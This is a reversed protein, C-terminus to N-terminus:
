RIDLTKTCYLSTGNSMCTFLTRGTNATGTITLDAGSVLINTSALTRSGTADQKFIIWYVGGDKLNSLTTSTVNGTLTFEASNGDKFDLTAGGTINATQRVGYFQDGEVVFSDGIGGGANNNAVTFRGTESGGTATAWSVTLRTANALSSSANEIRYLHGIGLNAGGAGGSSTLDTQMADHTVNTVGTSLNQTFLSSSPALTYRVTGDSSTGTGEAVKFPDHTSNTGQFTLGNRLNICSTTAYSASSAWCIGPGSSQSGGVFPFLIGGQNGPASAAGFNVKSTDSTGNLILNASSSGNVISLTKTTTNYSFDTTGTLLNSGDGYGVFTATLTPVSSTSVLSWGTNGSGSVKIYWTGNTRLYISGPECTVAGEPTASGSTYCAGGGVNFLKPATVATAAYINAPRNDGSSGINITNDTGYLTTGTFVLNSGSNSIKSGTQTISHASDFISYFDTSGAGIRNGVVRWNLSTFDPYLQVSQGQISMVYTSGNVAAGGNAAITVNVGSSGINFITIVENGNEYFNPSPLTLTCPSGCNTRYARGGPNLFSTTTTIDIVPAYGDARNIKETRSTATNYYTSIMGAAGGGAIQPGRGQVQLPPVGDSRIPQSNTYFSAPSNAFVVTDAIYWRKANEPTLSADTDFLMAVWAGSSASLGVFKSIGDVTAGSGPYSFTGATPTGEINCDTFKASAYFAAVDGDIDGAAGGIVAWYATAPVVNVGNCSWCTFDGQKIRYGAPSSINVDGSYHGYDYNAPMNPSLIFFNYGVNSTSYINRFESSFVNGRYLGYSGADSITVNTISVDRFGSVHDVKIGIQSAGTDNGEVWLDRIKPGLFAYIGSGEVLDLITANTNSHIITKEKGDGELTVGGEVSLGTVLYEGAPAYVLKGGAVAAADLAAQFCATDNTIGDGVCSYPAQTINIAQRVGGTACSTTSIVGASSMQMCLTSAPLSPFTYNVGGFSPQGTSRIRFMTSSTSDIAKFYDGSQSTVGKVQVVHASTARSVGGKIIVQDTELTLESLGGASIDFSYGSQNIQGSIDHLINSAGVTSASTWYTLYNTTGSGGLGSTHQEGTFTYVLANGASGITELVRGIVQVGTTPLASGLDKCRGALTTSTGVYNGATAAGDFECDVSGSQVIQANGTTGAGAIVIGVIKSTDSTLATVATSPAGTLKALRNVVTGGVSANAIEVVQQSETGLNIRKGTAAPAFESTGVQQFVSNGIVTGATFIPFRNATGSGTIGSGGGSSTVIWFGSRTVPTLLGGGSMKVDYVGDLAYFSIYGDSDATFPNSKPTGSSNSAISALNTTGTDYITATCSPYSRQVKTTSSRGDTVVSEGGKECFLQIKEYTQAAVPSGLVALLIALWVFRKM